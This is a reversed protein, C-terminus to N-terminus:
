SAVTPKMARLHTPRLEGQDLVVIMLDWVKIERDLLEHGVAFTLSDYLPGALAEREQRATARYWANRDQLQVNEFGASLLADKYTEATALGFDLGEAEM